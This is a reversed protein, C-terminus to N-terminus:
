PHAWGDVTAKIESGSGFDALHSFHPGTKRWISGNETEGDARDANRSVLFCGGERLYAHINGVAESLQAASFYALNLVNSARVASFRDVLTGDRVLCNLEMTTIAPDNQVLPQILPIRADLRMSRRLGACRLYLAGLPDSAHGRDMRESALRLGFRGIRVMVPEGDAARYEFIPGKRYRLLSLNVDTMYLRVREGFAARLAAALDLTTIGDSAGLDLVAIEEGGAPALHTCIMAETAPLRGRNTRKWTGGMRLDHLVHSFDDTLDTNSRGASRFRDAIDLLLDPDALRRGSAAESPPLPEAAIVRIM